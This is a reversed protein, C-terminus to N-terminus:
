CAVRLLDKGRCPNLRRVFAVKEDARLFPMRFPPPDTELSRPRVKVLTLLRPPDLLGDAHIWIDGVAADVSAKIIVVKRETLEEGLPVEEGLRLETFDVEGTTWELSSIRSRIMWPM